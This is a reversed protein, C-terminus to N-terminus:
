VELFSRRRDTRDVGDVEITARLDAAGLSGPRGAVFLILGESIGLLEGDSSHIRVVLEYNGGGLRARFRIGAEVEEGVQFSRERHLARTHSAVPLGMAGIIAFSVTCDPVERYFRLRVQLEIPADYHAHNSEDEGGVLRREVVDVVTRPQGPDDFKSMTACHLAIADEIDGDHQIQGAHMVIGRRCLQRLMHMSHSVMMITAGQAHLTRLRDFCKVHFGADGVALIEDILLVTPDTHMIVSFGLRMSMGSSYFKVPTEIFDELEAFEVIEDLRETAQKATLGLLMGNLVANERGSMEPHFGVGLSILPAIRGRVFGRGQTPSTVGALLRLMTTKGAGNAGLIGVIEGVEVVLDIGRVAWLEDRVAGGFPLVSRLLAKREDLKLYRKGVGRLEIAASM